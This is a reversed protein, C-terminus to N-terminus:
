FRYGLGALLVDTDRNYGTVIRNWVLPIEWHGAFRVGARLSVIGAVAGRGSEGPRPTRRQDVAVYTGGGLALDLHGGPFVRTAWVQAIVGNRRVLRTDGENLWAVSADWYRGIGRRYEISQALAYEASYSNVITRGALLTVANRTTWSAQHPPRPRPGGGPPPPSLQYGLGALVSATDFRNATEVWNLRIQATLRGPLYWTAAASAVAGWGHDDRFGGPRAPGTTDYYFYPGLGAALSLRRRFFLARRWLQFTQGDRRHGPLHGENLYAFSLASREGLGQLFELSWAYTHDHLPASHIAGGLFSIEQAGAPRAAFVAAAAVLVLVLKRGAM